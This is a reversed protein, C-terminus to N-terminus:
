FLEKIGKKIGEKDLGYKKFLIDVAGHETIGQELGLCKVRVDNISAKNLFELVASGFGCSLIGDEITIIRKTKKALRAILTEDLPTVFRANVVGLYIGENELDHAAQLGIEVMKGLALIVGDNGEILEEAIGIEIDQMRDEKNQITGGRPYRIACPGHHELSFKLMYSLESTNKPSMITLNPLHRLYALDFIGQHTAGDEGVIGARDICFVVQLNGLCVDHFIQDYARQLFTSYIACVPKLGNAALGAAFTVAHEEAIGVDFFREPFLERFYGLGTGECMAATIAVIRSDKKALEVLTQGFINSFTNSDAEKLPKGTAIDFSSSGHFWAPNEEAPKYGKGKKTVVHILRSGTITKIRKLTSILLSIDHGDIPGFYKFGLEEFLAGPVILNKVGEEIRKALNVMGIGVRPVKSLIDKIDQKLRNYIPMTILRNLYGSLAGVTPSISMENSNLIIILNSNLHGAHNLAEFAMGGSLAGDGIVAMIHNSEGKLDRGTAMGLAASISTSAHGTNFADYVSEEQKPFGSIGEFQRLTHFDKKRGTLIKHAYCQHGVDWLIKDNPTNFVYHLAITLEIIGLNSALHGGNISVIETIFQRLENGIHSLEELNLKKLDSPLNINDLCNNM